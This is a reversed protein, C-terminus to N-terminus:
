DKQKGNLVEFDRIIYELNRRIANKHLKIQLFLYIDTLLILRSSGKDGGSYTSWTPQVGGSLAVGMDKM